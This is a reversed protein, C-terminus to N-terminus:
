RDQCRLDSDLETCISLVRASKWRRKAHLCPAKCLVVVHLNAAPKIDLEDNRADLQSPKSVLEKANFPVKWLLGFGASDVVAPDM